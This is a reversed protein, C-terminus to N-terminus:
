DKFSSIIRSEMKPINTIVLFYRLKDLLETHTVYADYLWFIEYSILEKHFLSRMFVTVKDIWSPPLRINDTLLRLVSKRELLCVSKFNFIHWYHKLALKSWSGLLPFPPPETSSYDSLDFVIRHSHPLFTCM